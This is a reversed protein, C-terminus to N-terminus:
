GGIITKDLTELKRPLDLTALPNGSNEAVRSVLM